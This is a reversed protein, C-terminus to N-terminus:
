SSLYRNSHRSLLQAKKQQTDAIEKLPTEITISQTKRPYSKDLRLPIGYQLEWVQTQREPVRQHSVTQFARPSPRYNWIREREKEQQNYDRTKNDHAQVIEVLKQNDRTPDYNVWYKM